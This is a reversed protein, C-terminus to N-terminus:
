RTLWLGVLLIGIWLLRIDAYWPASRTVAPATDVPNAAVFDAAYRDDSFWIRLVNMDRVFGLARVTAHAHAWRTAAIGALAVGACLFWLVLDGKRLGGHRVALYSLNAVKSAALIAIGRVATMVPGSELIMSAIDNADAHRQCMPVRMQEMHVRTEYGGGLGFRGFRDRAVRCTAPVLLDRAGCHPCRRPWNFDLTSGVVAVRVIGSV